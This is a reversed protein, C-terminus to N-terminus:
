VDGASHRREPGQVIRSEMTERKKRAIISYFYDDLRLRKEMSILDNLIRTRKEPSKVPNKEM